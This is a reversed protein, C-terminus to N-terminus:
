IDSPELNLNPASIAELHGNLAPGTIRSFIIVLIRNVQQEAFIEYRLTKWTYSLIKFLFYRPNVTGDIHLLSCSQSLISHSNQM